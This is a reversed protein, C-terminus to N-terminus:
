WWGSSVGSLITKSRIARTTRPNSFTIASNNPVSSIQHLNPREWLDGPPGIRLSCLGNQNSQGANRGWKPTLARTNAGGRGFQLNVSRLGPSSYHHFSLSLFFCANIEPVFLLLHANLVTLEAREPLRIEETPAM